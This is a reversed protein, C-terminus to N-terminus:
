CPRRSSRARMGSRRRARSRGAEAAHRGSEQHAPRPGQLDEAGDRRGQLRRKLQAAARQGFGPGVNEFNVNAFLVMRDAHPSNKIAAIGNKLREGSGGSLNVLVRLNLADMSSAVKALQEASIPTPQHSHIDIVPFKARKVPHEPVVLTSKPKYDTISPAPWEPTQGEGPRRGQTSVTVLLAARAAVGGAILLTKRM